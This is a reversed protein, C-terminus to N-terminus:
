TQVQGGQGVEREWTWWTWRCHVFAHTLSRPCCSPWWLLFADACVAGACVAWMDPVAFPAQQWLLSHASGEAPTSSCSSGVQCHQFAREVVIPTPAPQEAPKLPRQDARVPCGNLFLKIYDRDYGALGILQRPKGEAGPKLHTVAHQSLQLHVGPLLCSLM